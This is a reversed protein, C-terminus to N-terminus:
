SNKRGRITADRYMATTNPTVQHALKASRAVPKRLSKGADSRLKPSIVLSKYYIALNDHLM